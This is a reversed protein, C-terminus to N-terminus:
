LTRAFPHQLTRIFTTYLAHRIALLPIHMTSFGTVVVSTLRGRGSGHFSRRSARSDPLSGRAVTTATSVVAQLKSAAATSSPMVGFVSRWQRRIRPISTSISSWACRASSLRCASGPFPRARAAPALRAPLSLSSTSLRARRPIRPFPATDLTWGASSTGAHPQWSSQRAPRRYPARRQKTCPTIGRKTPTTGRRRYLHWAEKLSFPDVNVVRLPAM